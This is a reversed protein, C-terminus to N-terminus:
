GHREESAESGQPSRLFSHIASWLEKVGEGSRASFAIPRRDGLALAQRVAALSAGRRGRPLRDIKTAVVSPRYGLGVFFEHAQEDLPTAGVKADVLQVVHRSGSKSRLYRDVLAAWRRRLDRRVKAWGYGPLDVFYFEDDVLFYNVARTRGPTSSVRALNKTGLLKNMLSSKGVNSRGAFLIEPKGDTVFDAATHASRLYRATRAKLETKAPPAREPAM